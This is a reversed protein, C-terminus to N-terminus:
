KCAKDLDLLLKKNFAIAILSDQATDYEFLQRKKRDFSFRAIVPERDPYSEHVSYDYTKSYTLASDLKPNPSGEYLLGYSTGGNAIIREALGKTLSKYRPSTTLIQYIIQHCPRTTKDREPQDKPICSVSLLFCAALLCIFQIQKM